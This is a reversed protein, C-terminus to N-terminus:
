KLLRQDQLVPGLVTQTYNQSKWTGINQTRDLTVYSYSNLAKYSTVQEPQQLRLAQLLLDSINEVWEGVACM